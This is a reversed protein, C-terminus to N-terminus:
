ISTSCGLMLLMSSLFEVVSKIDAVTLVSGTDPLWPLMSETEMNKGQQWTSKEEGHLRGTGMYAGQGWISERDGHARGTGMYAGQGWTVERDGHVRGTGM